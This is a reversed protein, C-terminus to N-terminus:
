TELCEEYDRRKKYTHLEEFAMVWTRGSISFTLNGDAYEKRMIQKAEYIEFDTSDDSVIEIMSLFKSVSYVLTKIHSGIDVGGVLIRANTCTITIFFKLDM